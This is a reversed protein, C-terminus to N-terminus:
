NTYKKKTNGEDDIVEDEEIIEIKGKTNISDEYDDIAKKRLEIIEYKLGRLVRNDNYSM